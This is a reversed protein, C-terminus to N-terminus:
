YLLIDTFVSERSRGQKLKNTALAFTFLLEMLIQVVMEGLAPTHPIHGYIDLCQVFHEVSELLDALADYSSRVGRATQYM